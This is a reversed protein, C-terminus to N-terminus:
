QQKTAKSDKTRPARVSDLIASDASSTVADLAISRAGQVYHKSLGSAGAAGPLIDECVPHREV